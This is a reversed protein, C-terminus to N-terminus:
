ARVTMGNNKDIWCQMKDGGILCKWVIKAFDDLEDARYQSILPEPQLSPVLLPAEAYSLEAWKIASEAEWLGRRATFMVAGTCQAWGKTMTEYVNAITDIVLQSRRVSETLIWLRWLEVCAGYEEDFTIGTWQFPRSTISGEEGRYSKASEWMRMVWRRLTPIQQEASARFRVSGDFLRIFVYVFLAQVRALHARIVQVGGHALPSERALASSREEAIQLVIEKVAPTHSVYTALTTFADQLCTPMGGDYLRLHIFNNHGNKVWLQLMQEVAHIFPEMEVKTCSPEYTGHQKVWTVDQLFWPPSSNSVIDSGIANEQASQGTVAAPLPQVQPMTLDPLPANFDDAGSMAGWDVLDLDVVPVHAQNQIDYLEEPHGTRNPDRQRRKPQPYVCHLDRDLCRQCEPLQKDCRRKSDACAICAKQRSVASMIPTRSGM